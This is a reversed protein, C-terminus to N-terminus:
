MATWGANGLLVNSTPTTIPTSTKGDLSGIRLSYTSTNAAEDTVTRKYEYRTGDRSTTSWPSQWYGDFFDTEGPNDTTLRTLNTGDINIKWLGNQSIDENNPRISPTLTPTGVQLLVTTRSVARVDGLALTPSSFITQTTGGMAPMVELSCLSTTCQNVFLQTHDLSLAYHFSSPNQVSSGVSSKLSNIAAITANTYDGDNYNDRFSTIADSYISSSAPVSSGGYIAIHKNVTDIAIVILNPNTIHSATARDFDTSTGTFENTTYIDIPYALTAAYHQVLVTNMIQANDYIHVLVSGRQYTITQVTRSGVDLMYLNTDFPSMANSLQVYVHSNDLWAVPYYAVSDKVDPNFHLESQLLGSTMNLLYVTGTKKETFIVSKQDPSWQSDALNFANSGTLDSIHGCYLTQVGRGDMRVMRLEPQGQTQSTSIFTSFLLWQGDSSILAHLILAHAVRIIETTNGTTVDYRKLIGTADNSSRENDFYVINQHIGLTMPAIVAARATGDAPCITQTPPMSVATAKSTTNSGHLILPLAKVGGVAVATCVAILITWKM